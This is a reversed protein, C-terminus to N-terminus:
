DLNGNASMPKESLGVNRVHEDFAERLKDGLHEPESGGGKVIIVEGCVSCEGSAAMGVRLRAILEPKDPM